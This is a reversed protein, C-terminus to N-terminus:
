SIGEKLLRNGPQRSQIPEFVDLPGFTSACKSQATLPDLDPPAIMHHWEGCLSSRCRYLSRRPATSRLASCHLYSIIEAKRRRLCDMLEEPLPFPATVRLVDGALTLRGGQAWVRHLLASTTDSM